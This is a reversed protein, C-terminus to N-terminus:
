GDIARKTLPSGDGVTLAKDAQAKSEDSVKSSSARKTERM